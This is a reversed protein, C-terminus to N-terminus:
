EAYNELAEMEAIMEPSRLDRIDWRGSKYGNYWAVCAAFFLGISASYLGILFYKIFFM